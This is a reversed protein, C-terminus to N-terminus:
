SKSGAVLALGISFYLDNDTGFWNNNFDFGMHEEVFVAAEHSVRVSYYLPTFM